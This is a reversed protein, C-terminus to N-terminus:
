QLNVSGEALIKGGEKEQAAYVINLKGRSLSVDKPIDLPVSIFRRPTPRYVPVGPFFKLLQSKGDAVWSVSIDGMSSRNGTRALYMNLVPAGSADRSLKPADIRMALSTDGHRFIVPIILVVNTKVAIAVDRSKEGAHADADVNDNEIRVKLHARYEGPELNEPKRLMLRINQTEGPKLTMSHPAIHVYPVASYEATKGAEVPVVRGNEEMRMDVLEASFDGSAQGINKLVVTAYREANEMVVRTPLLMPEAHRNDALLPQAPLLMLLAIWLKKV